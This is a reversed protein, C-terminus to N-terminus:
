LTELYNNIREILVDVDIDHVMAAEALTEGAAALCGVCHMGSATLIPIIGENVEIIENILMDKTVRVDEM